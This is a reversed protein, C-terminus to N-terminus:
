PALARSEVQFSGKVLKYKVSSLTMFVNFFYLAKVDLNNITAFPISVEITGVGNPTVTMLQGGTETDLDKNFAARFTAGSIDIPLKTTPDRVVVEMMFDEDKPLILKSLNKLEM